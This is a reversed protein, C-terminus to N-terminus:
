LQATNEFIEIEFQENVKNDDPFSVLADELKTVIATSMNSIFENRNYDRKLLRKTRIQRVLYLVIVVFITISIYVVIFVPKDTVDETQHKPKLSPSFSPSFSPSATYSLEIYPEAVVVQTPVTVSQLIISGTAIASVILASTFSGDDVSQQLTNTLINYTSNSENNKIPATIQTTVIVGSNLLRRLHNDILIRRVNSDTLGTVQCGSKPINLINTTATCAVDNNEDINENWISVSIGSYKISAPFSIVETGIPIYVSSPEFTPTFSPEFTPIFSPEFTPIFSPEFTPIFSPAFTPTFSPEFTPIFSPEFTPTFSPALTPSFSPALTPCDTIFYSTPTITPFGTPEATPGGTPFFTSPLLSPLTTPMSSPLTTPMSSPLTTPNGLAIATSSLFILMINIIIKNLM